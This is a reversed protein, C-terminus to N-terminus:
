HLPKLLEPAVPCDARALADPVPQTGDPGAIRDGDVLPVLEESRHWPEVVDSGFRALLAEWLPGPLARGAGAIVWLPVGSSRAVAAASCSGAAALFGGPGLAAAELLVLDAEAVAAALGADPVDACEVGASRFRRSLGGAEGRCDVLLVVVDARRWVAEAAQEPWGLLVLTAQEPLEAALARATGDQDVEVAVRWAEDVPDPAALVRAALSWMPGVTPHREVLRRCATVLGAPESGFAALAEAAERVLLSPGVGEARAVHRLREIPHM